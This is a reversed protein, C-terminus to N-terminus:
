AGGLATRAARLHAVAAAVADTGAEDRLATEMVALGGFGADNWLPHDRKTWPSVYLYPEPHTADGPSFGYSARAGAAEDGHDVAVDFHEPWLRVISARDAAASDARLIGLAAAGLAFWDAIRTAAAPDLALPADPDGAAPVDFQAAWEVDPPAGVLEGAAALTTLPARQDQGDRSVVLDLGDVRVQDGEGWDPTGFGGPLVRLSIQGDAARRRAPSVVYAALLHLGLRTRQLPELHDAATM